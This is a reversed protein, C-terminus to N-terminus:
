GNINTPKFNLYRKLTLSQSIIIMGPFTKALRSGWITQITNSSIVFIGRGEFFSSFIREQIFSQAFSFLTTTLSSLTPLKSRDLFADLPLSFGGV